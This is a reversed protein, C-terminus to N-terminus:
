RRRDAFSVAPPVGFRALVNSITAAAALSAGDGVPAASCEIITYM